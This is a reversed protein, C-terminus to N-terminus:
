EKALGLAEFVGVKVWGLYPIEFIAKGHIQSARINHEFNGQVSNADGKTEYTGDPNIAIVRHIIPYRYGGTSADFVVIDGISLGSPSSVIVMDGKSFEPVMSNSFVAVVPTDTHLAFGLGWNVGIAIAFGLVIYFGTGFLSNRENVKAWFERLNM